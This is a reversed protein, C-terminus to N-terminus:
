RAVADRDGGRRDAGFHSGRFCAAFFADADAETLTAGDALRALLPKFADAM